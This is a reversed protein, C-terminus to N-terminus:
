LTATLPQRSFLAPVANRPKLGSLPSRGQETGSRPVSNWGPRTKTDTETGPRGSFRGCRTKPSRIKKLGQRLSLRQRSAPCSNWPRTTDVCPVVATTCMGAHNLVYAGSASQGRQETRKWASTIWVLLHRLAIALRVSGVTSSM